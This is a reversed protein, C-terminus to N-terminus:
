KNGMFDDIQRFVDFFESLDIPKTIYDDAKHKFCEKIDSDSSSTSFIIVPIKETSSETKLIQLLEIGNMGPLNLDLLILDPRRNKGDYLYDLAEDGNYVHVLKSESKIHILAERALVVDGENDEVLLIVYKGEGNKM